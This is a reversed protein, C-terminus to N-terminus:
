FPASQYTRGLLVTAMDLQMLQLSLVSSGGSAAAWSPIGSAVTLVQGTSGVTLKSLTNTASAYLIDGTTYTSQATGGSTAVLTASLGAATGTTNQNLTPFDGAVAASLATGNGKLIGTVSTTLTLAPTTGGSSSGTFGNASVVSVATVSGTGMAAWSLVGAGDTTLAYGPTGNSDPLTWTRTTTLNSADLM